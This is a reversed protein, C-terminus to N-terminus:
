AFVVEGNRIWYHACEQMNPGGSTRISPHLTLDDVTSGGEHKWALGYGPLGAGFPIVTKHKGCPCTFEIGDAGDATPLMIKDALFIPELDRLKM